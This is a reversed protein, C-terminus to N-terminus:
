YEVGVIGGWLVVPPVVAFVAGWPSRAKIAFGISFLALVTSVGGVLYGGYFIPISMLGTFCGESDGENLRHAEALPRYKVYYFYGEFAAYPGAMLGSLFGMVYTAVLWPRRKEAEEADQNPSRDM